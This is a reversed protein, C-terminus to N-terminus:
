QKPLDSPILRAERNRKSRTADFFWGWKNFYKIASRVHYYLLKRSRYSGKAYGHVVAVLPYYTIRSVDGIRRVLDVDEMYMFFREDFGSMRKILETRILLFCGSLTPVDSPRDQPLQHMEYRRNIKEKIRRFPVFRRFILDMPSPLLKCLPQLDGNPYNIRPMLAGVDESDSMFRLLESIVKPDFSIDPNLFIHFDSSDGVLSIALNHGKGFGINKGVYHYLVRQHSFLNSMLPAASNDVIILKGDCSNLYSLIALEFQKPNNHFLVLSASIAM